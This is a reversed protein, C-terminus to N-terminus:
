PLEHAAIRRGEAQLFTMAEPDLMRVQGPFSLDYDQPLKSMLVEFIPSASLKRIRLSLM